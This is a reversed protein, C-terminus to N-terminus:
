SRPTLCAIRDARAGLPRVDRQVGIPACPENRSDRAQHAPVGLGASSERTSDLGEDVADQRTTAHPRRGYVVLTGFGFSLVHAPVGLEPLSLRWTAAAISRPARDPREPFTANPNPLAMFFDTLLLFDDWVEAFDAVLVADKFVSFGLCGM